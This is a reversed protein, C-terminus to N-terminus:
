LFHDRPVDVWVPGPRGEVAEYFAMKLLTVPDIKVQYEWSSVAAKCVHQAVRKTHFGQVGIVRAESLLFRSPENGTIIIVPASDMKAALAGTVANASGAGTTCIAVGVKGNTRGWFTAAMVAAQEHHCCVLQTAKRRAIAEFLAVNGAGIVGFAHTVEKEELLGAIEDAVAM